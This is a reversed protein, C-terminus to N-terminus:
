DGWLPSVAYYLGIAGAFWLLWEGLTRRKTFFGEKVPVGGGILKRMGIMAGGGSLPEEHATDAPSAEAPMAIAESDAAAQEAPKNPKPTPKKRRATKKNRNKRSMGTLKARTEAGSM